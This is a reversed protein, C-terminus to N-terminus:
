DNEVIINVICNCFLNDFEDQIQKKFKVIEEFSTDDEFSVHLDIKTTDGSKHSNISYLQSYSDFHRTLVSLIKMQDGEPLTKDTLEILAQRTRKVYGFMLGIAILISIIPSIYGGIPHGRLLWIAFLSVLTIGDFLLAALTEAYNVKSIASSHM